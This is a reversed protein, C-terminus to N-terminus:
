VFDSFFPMFDCVIIGFVNGHSHLQRSDVSWTDATSCAVVAASGASGVDLSM